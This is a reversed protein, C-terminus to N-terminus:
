KIELIWFFLFLFLLLFIFYFLIFFYFYFYFLLFFLIFYFYFLFLLLFIIYYLIIFLLYYFLIFLFQFIFFIVHNPHFVNKKLLFLLVEKTLSHHCLLHRLSYGSLSFRFFHRFLIEFIQFDFFDVSSIYNELLINSVSNGCKEILFEVVDARIRKNNKFAYFLPEKPYVVSKTKMRTVPKWKEKPNLKKEILYEM